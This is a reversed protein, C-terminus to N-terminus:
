GPQIVAGVALDITFIDNEIVVLSKIFDHIQKGEIKIKVVIMM